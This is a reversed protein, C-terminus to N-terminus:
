APAEQKSTVEEILAERDFDESIPTGFRSDKSCKVWLLTRLFERSYDEYETGAIKPLVFAMQAEYPTWAEIDEAGEQIKKGDKDRWGVRIKM